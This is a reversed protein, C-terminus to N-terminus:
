LGLVPVRESVYWTKLADGPPGQFAAMRRPAALDDVLYRPSSSGVMNGKRVCTEDGAARSNKSLM